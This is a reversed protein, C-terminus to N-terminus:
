MESYKEPVPAFSPIPYPLTDDSGMIFEYRGVRVKSDGM